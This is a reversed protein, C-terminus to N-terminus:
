SGWLHKRNNAVKLMEPQYDIERVSEGPLLTRPYTDEIPMCPESHWATHIVECSYFYSCSCTSYESLEYKCDFYYLAIKVILKLGPLSIIEVRNAKYGKITSFDLNKM